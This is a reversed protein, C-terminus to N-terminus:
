SVGRQLTLRAEVQGPVETPNIALASIAVGEKSQLDGLWVVLKDFATATVWLKVSDSGEPEMRQLAQRLGARQASQDVIALLSRNRGTARRPQSRKLQRVELSASQMWALAASQSALNDRLRSVASDLPEWALVYILAVVTIATAAVLAARERPQLSELWERM